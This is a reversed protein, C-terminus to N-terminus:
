KPETGLPNAKHFTVAGEFNHEHLYEMFRDNHEEHVCRVFFGGVRPQIAFIAEVHGVEFQEMAMIMYQATAFYVTPTDFFDAGNGIM